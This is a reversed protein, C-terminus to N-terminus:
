TQVGVAALALQPQAAFRRCAAAINTWGLLRFLSITVNRFAAMVQPIHGVRVQSRDEDFTVDRVYHLKNEIHWHERWLKLLQDSSAREPSLSTVGYVVEHRLIQKQKNLTRRELKVVQQLGPWDTYGALVASAILHREEIRDGHLNISHAAHFTEQVAEPHEFLTKIDELLGPQNEKVVQLYDGQGDVIAQAIDRQTHLADTTTVYGAIGILDLLQDLVGTENTADPVAVQGLVINLRQSLASLLHAEEAGQKASGRLTKGDVAIVELEEGPALHRLVELAWRGLAHEVRERCIGKFLRHITSQSPSWGRRFGLHVLWPQGYDKGWDAIAAQSRRGCLMAVCVYLLLSLLAYRKGHAKRFEPIEALFDTLPPVSTSMCEEM